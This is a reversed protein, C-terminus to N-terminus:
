RDPPQGGRVRLERLPLSGSAIDTPTPWAIATWSVVPPAAPTSGRSRVVGLLDLDARAPGVEIGEFRWGAEDWRWVNVDGFHGDGAAPDSTSEYMLLGEGPGAGAVFGVTMGRRPAPDPMSVRLWPEDAAVATAHSISPGEVWLLHPRDRTDLVLTLNRIRDANAARLPVERPARVDTGGPGVDQIMVVAEMAGPVSRGEIWAIWHRGRNDVALVPATAASALRRSDFPIGVSGHRATWLRVTPSETRASGLMEAGVLLVASGDATMAVHRATTPTQTAVAASDVLQPAQWGGLSAESVWLRSAVWPPWVGWQPNGVRASGPVAQGWAIGWREEGLSVPLVFAVPGWSEESWPGAPLETSEQVVLVGPAPGMGPAAREWPEGVVYDECGGDMLLGAVVISQGQIMGGGQQLQCAPPLPHLARSGVAIAAGPDPAQGSVPWSGALLLLAAGGVVGRRSNGLRRIRRDWM